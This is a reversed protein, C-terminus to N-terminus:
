SDGFGTRIEEMRTRNVGMDGRGLRAASRFHITMTDDDILFQVDDVFRFIRSRFEFHLYNGEDTILTSRPMAAIVALLRQKAEESSGSYSLPAIFHESDTAAAQTSVCNPSDPCPPLQLSTRTASVDAPAGACASVAFLVFLTLSLSLVTSLRQLPIELRQSPQM